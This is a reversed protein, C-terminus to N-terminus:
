CLKAELVSLKEELENIRAKLKQIQWTNLSVFEDRRLYWCEDETNPNTLMVGAFDQTTLGANDIAEVVEQAIFGTHYRNSTGDNYKYRRPKINDFLVEYEDTYNGISNKVRTDSQHDQFTWTGITSISISTGSEEVTLFDYTSKNKVSGYKLGNSSVFLASGTNQSDNCNSCGIGTKSIVAHADTLESYDVLDKLPMCFTGGTINVNNAYLSGTDTVGFNDGAKLVLSPVKSSGIEYETTSPTSSFFCTNNKLSTDDIEWGGIKGLTAVMEGYRTVGFKRNSIFAWKSSQIGGITWTGYRDGFDSYMGVLPFVDDENEFKEIGYSSIKWGGLYGNSSTITGTIDVNKATIGDANANKVQLVGGSIECGGIYGSTADIYGSINADKAYLLGKKSVGFSCNTTDDEGCLIVWDNATRNNIKYSTELNGKPILRIQGDSEINSLENESITWGGIEGDGSTITGSINAGSACLVGGTTVGFGSGNSTGAGFYWNDTYGGITYKSLTGTCMFVRNAGDAYTTYLSNNDVNWGGINVQGDIASLLTDKGNKIVISNAVIEGDINANTVKLNGDEDIKCKGIEGSTAYIEGSIYAKTASLKGDATVGFSDGAIIRWNNENLTGVKTFSSVNSSFLGLYAETGSEGSCLSIDNVTWGGINVKNNGAELLIKNDTNKVTLTGTINAANVKLNEAEVSTTKIRDDTIETIKDKGVTLVDAVDIQGATLTDAIHAAPVWLKGDIIECEGIKGDNAYIAGTITLDGDNDVCFIEKDGHRIVVLEDANPNAVLSTTKNEVALGYENFRLTNEKNSLTLKSGILLNGIIAEGIVGYYTQNNFNIEGFAARTSEFGDDTYLIQNNVIWGQKADYGNNSRKRLHIGYKDIETGQCGDTAKISTTANLLGDNILKEIESATDSGRSWYSSHTAVSKGASIANSLLDAHIDSQTRINTLEGFTCSFDSFDDFNVDVQLLRSRKIYDSRIGVKIINGLQFQWVIPGFEHLAYINAMTMSFQLQPQCLKRLEIRGSEMADQKLVLSSSLDDLSTEVFDDLHLEDERLFASLRKLQEPTFNNAMDVNTSINNNDTVYPIKENELETIKKNINSIAANISNIFCVTVFYQGHELNDEELWGNEIQASKHQDYSKLYLENLPTRGLESWLQNLIVDIAESIAKKTTANQIQVLWQDFTPEKLFDFGVLKTLSSIADELKDEDHTLVGRAYKKLASYLDGVKDENVNTTLNSYYQTGVVYDTPLSVEKYYKNGNADSQEVYYTGVTIETAEALSYDLSLRHEYYSMQDNIKAIEQANKTYSSRCSNINNLYAGYADYLDQGMWDVTYYYSIDTIYPLGLNVERIDKDDGYTVTLVTKIDDASYNVNVEQALNDFSVFVDTEWTSDIGVVEIYADEEPAAELIVAYSGDVVAYTWQTTKYGDISVTEVSSFPTNLKFITTKGDGRFKATPSEAYVNIISNITDFVVYCNFKDCIENMLFDYISARDVEFQRSMTQLQADVHGITWCGYCKELILHLLSLKPNSPNYLTIPIIVGSDDANLVEMSKTTGKNIVFDDLYKQALTYELSYAKCMKSEKIGDGILEPGQLEFYGFDEVLILRLAEIKDYFPNVLTEGTVNDNYFRGVEFSLESLSNFKLSAKTDTTNLKCIKEKDTECLYINPKNYLEPVLMNKPFRM